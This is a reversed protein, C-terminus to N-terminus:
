QEYTGYEWEGFGNRYFCFIENKSFGGIRANQGRDSVSTNGDRPDTITVKVKLKAPYCSSPASAITQMKGITIGGTWEFSVTNKVGFFHNEYASTFSRELTQKIEAASPPGVKSKAKPIVTTQQQQNKAATTGQNNNKPTTTTMNMAKMLMELIDRGDKKRGINYQQAWQLATKGSEDKINPDAGNDLLFKIFKPEKYGKIDYILFTEGGLSGNVANINAGQDILSKAYTENLDYSSVAVFLKRDLGSLEQSFVNSNLFMVALLLTITKLSVKKPKRIIIVSLIM